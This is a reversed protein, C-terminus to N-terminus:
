QLSEPIFWYDEQNNEEMEKMEDSQYAAIVDKAWESDAHEETTVAVLELHELIDESLLKTSPDM